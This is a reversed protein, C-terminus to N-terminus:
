AIAELHIRREQTIMWSNINEVAAKREHSTFVIGETGNEWIHSIIKRTNGTIGTDELMGAAVQFMAEMKEVYGKAAKDEAEFKAKETEWESDSYYNGWRTTHGM